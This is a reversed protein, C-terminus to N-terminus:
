RCARVNAFEATEVLAPTASFGAFLATQAFVAGLLRAIHAPIRRKQFTDLGYWM